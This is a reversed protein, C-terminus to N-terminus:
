EEKEKKMEDAMVRGNESEASTSATGYKKDYDEGTPRIVSAAKEKETLKTKEM